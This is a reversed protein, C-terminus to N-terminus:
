KTSYRRIHKPLFREAVKQSISYKFDGRTFDCLTYSDNFNRTSSAEHIDVGGEGVKCPKKRRRSKPIRDLVEKCLASFFDVDGRSGAMLPDGFEIDRGKEDCVLSM